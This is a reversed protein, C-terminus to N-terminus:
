HECLSFDGGLSAETAVVRDKMLRRRHREAEERSFGWDTSQLIHQVLEPPLNKGTLRLCIFPLVFRLTRFNAMRAQSPIDCSTLVQNKLAQFTIGHYEKDESESEEDDDDVLFFCLIKRKAIHDEPTSEAVSLKGVKHVSTNFNTTPVTGLTMWRAMSSMDNVDSWDSPFDNTSDSKTEDYYDEYDEDESDSDAEPRFTVNFSDHRYDEFTPFDTSPDRVKRFSLGEDVIASDTDYYYLASAVIREHPMGEMHWTGEYTEGPKLQYNAAKVIVKLQRGEFSFPALTEDAAFQTRETHDIETAKPSDRWAEEIAATDRIKQEAQEKRFNEWASRKLELETETRFVWREQWRWLLPSFYAGSPSDEQKYEFALTKKFHPLVLLFVKEILRYLQPFRERPGLGNIYSEIHVDDGNESVNFISPIWAYRSSFTHDYQGIVVETSFSSPLAESKSADGVRSEGLVLPYLSPHILDQVKGHSGPHLGLPERMALADLHSVLERHLSVPVLDDSIFVGVEESLNRPARLGFASGAAYKLSALITSDLSDMNLSLDPEKFTVPDDLRINFDCFIIRQAESKLEELAETIETNMLDDPAVLGAQTGDLIKHYWDKKARIADCFAAISPLQVPAADPETPPPTFVPDTNDVM